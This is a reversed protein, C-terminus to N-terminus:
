TLLNMTENLHKTTLRACIEQWRAHHLPRDARSSALPYNAFAEQELPAFRRALFYYYGACAVMAANDTCLDKPPIFCTLGKEEARSLLLSRVASNAAVGGALAIQHVGAVRAAALTKEVLVEAVAAQFSAAM